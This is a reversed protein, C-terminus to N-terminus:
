KEFNLDFSGDRLTLNPNYYPDKDIYKRWRARLREKEGEFRIIKEATEEYGRSKSEFHTLQANQLWVNDRGLEFIRMCLDVDNFAVVFEEDFGNVALFDERKIMVCAATVALYNNDVVLRNQYGLVDEAFYQHGHGAIDGYGFVIGAHQITKDPYFLKAGVCGIREFQSYSVMRTMWDPRIVSTDNNLFLLHKGHSKEVALNNIRSYNFPIDISTAIFREGLQEIYSAYLEKMRPDDSGNDAIVIEYNPYDTKEIISDVCLKVDDYGNRTPIIVSVLEPNKVAIKLEFTHPAVGETVEAEINRRAFANQIAEKEASQSIERTDTIHQLVKAVHGIETESLKESAKLIANYILAEESLDALLEKALDTKFIVSEYIYNMGMIYDPSWDPKFAPTHRHGNASIFDNDSYIMAQNGNAQIYAAYDLLANPALTDGATLYVVFDGTADAVNRIIEFNSYVQNDISQKTKTNEGNLLISFKVSTGLKEARANMEELTETEYMKLWLAYADKKRLADMQARKIAEGIGNAKAYRLGKKLRHTYKSLGSETGPVFDYAGSTNLTYESKDDASLFQITVKKAAVDKITMAFGALVTEPTKFLNMIDMRFFQQVDVQEERMNPVIIKVSKDTNEAFAWGQITWEGTQGNKTVSDINYRVTEM